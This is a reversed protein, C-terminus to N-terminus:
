KSFLDDAEPHEAGLGGPLQGQVRSPSKRGESGRMTWGPFFGALAWPCHGWEGATAKAIRWHVRTM